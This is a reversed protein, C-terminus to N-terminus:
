VRKDTGSFGNKKEEDSIEATGRRNFSTHSAQKRSKKRNVPIWESRGKEKPNSQSSNSNKVKPEKYVDNNVNKNTLTHSTLTATVSSCRSVNEKEENLNLMTQSPSWNSTNAATDAFNRKEPKRPGGQKETDKINNSPPNPVGPVKVSFVKESKKPAANLNVPKKSNERLDSESEEESTAM